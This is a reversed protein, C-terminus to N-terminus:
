GLFSVRAFVISGPQPVAGHAKHGTVEVASRQHLNVFHLFLNDNSAVSISSFWLIILFLLTYILTGLLFRIVAIIINM